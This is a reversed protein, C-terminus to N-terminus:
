IMRLQDLSVADIQQNVLYGFLPNDNTIVLYSNKATESIAADALDFQLFTKTEAVKKSELFIEETLEIYKSLAAQLSKRNGFLDSVETLIHPTTIKIDFYDVFKSVVYFDNEAFGATRGFNRILNIDVAGVIYLLLINTDILLGRQKYHQILRLLYDNM